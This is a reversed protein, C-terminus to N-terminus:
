TRVRTDVGSAKVAGNEKTKAPASALLGRAEATLALLEELMLERITRALEDVDAPTLGTTPIPDLV